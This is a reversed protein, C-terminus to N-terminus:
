KSNSLVVETVTSSPPASSFVTKWSTDVERSIPKLEGKPGLTVTPNEELVPVSIELDFEQLWASLSSNEIECLKSGSPPLNKHCHVIVDVLLSTTRV